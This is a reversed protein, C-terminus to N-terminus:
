RLVLNYLIAALKRSLPEPLSLILPLKSKKKFVKWCSLEVRLLTRLWNEWGINRTSTSQHYTTERHVELGILVKFNHTLWSLGDRALHFLPLMKSVWTIQLCDKTKGSPKLLKPLWFRLHNSEKLWLFKNGSSTQYGITKGSNTGLNPQSPESIHYLSVPWFCM